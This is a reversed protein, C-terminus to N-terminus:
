KELSKLIKEGIDMGNKILENCEINPDYIMYIDCIIELLKDWQNKISPHCKKVFEDCILLCTNLWLRLDINNKPLVKHLENLMNQKTRNFRRDSKNDLIMLGTHNLQINHKEILSSKMMIVQTSLYLIKPELDNTKNDKLIIILSEILSLICIQTIFSRTIRM